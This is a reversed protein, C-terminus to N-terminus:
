SKKSELVQSALGDAAILLSLLPSNEKAKNFNGKAEYSDMNLDWAGMHWRIALMEDTTLRLGNQLLLIVSKEGHGFPYKGHDVDYTKVEELQGDKNKQKKVTPKYIDSKCVDHLLSSIIVSEVPLSTQLDPNKKIILERLDLAMDCVNLSHELLGGPYSLHFKTSAPSDFFGLNELVEIIHEIGDRGTSRLLATFRAKKEEMSEAKLEYAFIANQQWDAM